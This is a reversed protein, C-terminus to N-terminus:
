ITDSEKTIGHVTAWWAGSDILNEPCSKLLPKINGGGPIIYVPGALISVLISTGKFSFVSNGYSGAIENKAM